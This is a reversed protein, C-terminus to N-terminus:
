NQGTKQSSVMPLKIRVTTGKNKGLSEVDFVDERQYYLKLRNIVNRIGIGNSDKSLNRNLQDQPREEMTAKKIKHILEQEMGIGNDKIEVNIDHEEQYVKMHIHGEYEIDRIGYNVANEVIPQLIMSPVPIDLVGDDVEKHFHISGSFRVNLIYIYSDVLKIENRLSSDRDFSNMNFRFFDSMHEIFLCTKDAGELMALQAGANLTNFLFHPNIQAQLYKLQADKLHNTMLFEKERLQNELEMSLKLKGIYDNISVIMRIFANTVVGVEDDTEPLGLDVDFNGEAVEHAVLALKRLPVTISRTVTIVIIVNFCTIMILLLGSVYQLYQFTELVKGYHDSNYKFQEDNLANIHNKVYGYLVTANDYYEKYQVINRGRKANVSDDLIDLYTESMNRINKQMIMNQDDVIDNRLIEGILNSYNEQRRYYDELSQTSKTNLYEYVTRHLLDLSDTLENLSINSVYVQDIAEFSQNINYYMYINTIFVIGATLM